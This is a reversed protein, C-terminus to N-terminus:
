SLQRLMAASQRAIGDVIASLVPAAGGKRGIRRALSAAEDPLKTAVNKLMELMREPPYRCARAMDAFHRPLIERIRYHTGVRMALKLKQMPLARPYPWASAIDYFPALRMSPRHKGPGHMLSFNKAHADTAALLYILCAGQMLRDRDTEPEDATDLLTMIRPFGPGGDNEYKSAPHVNLAQCCDEQHIRHWRAGVRIRDYREVILTPVDGIMRWETAAAALGMGRVLTLCFHENAAFGDFDNSAPKLIHTTPTRGYPVGWRGREADFYFATKSQAGALSFQGEQATARGAAGDGALRRIREELEAETLWDVQEARRSSGTVISLRDEAVFQVAGACDEGVNALLAVPNRASVRFDRAWATLTRENDPLLGWLFNAVTSGTVPLPQLPLSLSLPYADPLGLWTPDYTFSPQSAAMTLTGAVQGELCVFLIV